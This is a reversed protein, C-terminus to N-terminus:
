ARATADTRKGGVRIAKVAEDLLKDASEVRSARKNLSELDSALRVQRRGLSERVSERSPGGTVAKRQVAEKPELARTLTSAELGLPSGTVERAVDDMLEISIEGPAKSLEVARRVVAGLIRHATRFSLHKEMVLMELLNRTQGFNAAAKRAMMDHNVRLTSLIGRFLVVARIVEEVARPAQERVYRTTMLYMGTGFSLNRAHSLAALLDTVVRQAVGQFEELSFANKKQPYLFSTACYEDALELLGFEWSSWIYLDHACRALNTVINALAALVEVEVDYSYIAYLTNDYMGEFGLRKAVRERSIPFSVGWGMGVEAPSRNVRGYVAELRETDVELAEAIALLYHSFTTPEAHQLHTYAPMVTEVHREALVLVVKRTNIVERKLELLKRRVFLREAGWTADVRARGTLLQGGINEGLRQICIAEINSYVEELEPLLRFRDLGEEQIWELTDLLQAADSPSSIGSECLEVVHAKNYQMLEQFSERGAAIWNSYISQLEKAPGSTLRLRVFPKVEHLHDGM